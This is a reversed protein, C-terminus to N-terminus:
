RKVVTVKEGDKDETEGDGNFKLLATEIQFM